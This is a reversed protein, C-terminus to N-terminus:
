AKTDVTSGPPTAEGNGPAAADKAGGNKVVGVRAPRLLRDHFQYGIEYVQAITGHPKSPDPVELMAEHRHPDLKDGAAPQVQRIGQRELAELLARETMEIGSLLSRVREDAEVLEPAVSDIARRLNDAVPLLDKALPAAAYKAAEDRERRARNRVNETEALARLLQDKTEALEARLADLESPEGEGTLGGEAENEALAAIDQDNLAGVEATEAAEAGNGAQQQKSKSM